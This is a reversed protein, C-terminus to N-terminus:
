CVVQSGKPAVWNKSQIRILYGCSQKVPLDGTFTLPPALGGLTEGSMSRLGKIIDASTPTAGIHAAAAEVLKGSTWVSIVAASGALDPAYTQRAKQFEQAAATDTAMWPFDPLIAITGDLNPNSALRLDSSLSALVYQPRFNQQSCSNAVRGVTPPDALVLFVDAGSSSAQLCEATFDPQTVTIQSSYVVTAGVKQAAGARLLDNAQKCLPNEVCYLIGLKKTGTKVGESVARIVVDDIFTGQPFFVKSEWWNHTTIDGGISPVGKEELYGQSSQITLPDMNGTFAIVKRNEVMDKVIALHRAPDGADDGIIVQVPHGAIGGRANVMKEWVQLATRGPVTSAGLIGSYHAVNGLLIPAGGGGAAPASPAAPAPGAARSASTTPSGSKAPPTTGSTQPGAPRAAAVSDAGQVVGSAGTESGPSAPTAIASGSGAGSGREEHVAGSDSPLPTEQVVATAAKVVEEHSHRNGCASSGIVGVLAFVGFVTRAPLGAWARRPLFSESRRVEASGGITTDPCRRM